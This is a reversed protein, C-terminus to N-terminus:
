GRGILKQVAIFTWVTATLTLVASVIVIVLLIGAQSQLENWLAVVGVGAPVFLLGLNALFGDAATETDAFLNIKMVKCCQMAVFLLVLGVVPGPLPMGTSFVISEGILQFLLLVAIGRILINEGVSSQLRGAHSRALKDAM